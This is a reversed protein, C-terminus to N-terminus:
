GQRRGGPETRDGERRRENSCAAKQRSAGPAAAQSHWQGAPERAHHQGCLNALAKMLSRERHGQQPCAPPEMSGLSSGALGRFGTRGFDARVVLRILNFQGHHQASSRHPYASGLSECKGAMASTSCCSPMLYMCGLAIFSNPRLLQNFAGQDKILRKCAIQMSQFLTSRAM